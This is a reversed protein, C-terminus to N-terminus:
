AFSELKEGAVLGDLAVREVPGDLARFCSDCHLDPNSIRFEFVSCRGLLMDPTIDVSM